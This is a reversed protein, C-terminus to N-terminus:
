PRAHRRRRLAYAWVALLAVLVAVGIGAAGALPFGSAAPPVAARPAAATACPKGTTRGGYDLLVRVGVGGGVTDGVAAHATSAPLASMVALLDYHGTATAPASITLTVHRSQGPALKYSAPSATVWKPAQAARCQGNARELARFGATVALPSSGRDTVTVTRTVHRGTTAVEYPSVSVSLVPQTTIM